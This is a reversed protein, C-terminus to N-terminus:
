KDTKKYQAKFRESTIGMCKIVITDEDEFSVIAASNPCKHYEAKACVVNQDNDILYDNAAHYKKILYYKRSFIDTISKKIVSNLNM